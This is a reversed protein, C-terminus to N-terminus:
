FAFIDYSHLFAFLKSFKKELKKKQFVPSILSKSDSNLDNSIKHCDSANPHSFVSVLIKRKEQIEVLNQTFVAEMAKM